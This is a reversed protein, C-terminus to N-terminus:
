ISMILMAATVVIVVAEMISVITFVRKSFKSQQYERYSLYVTLASFLIVVLYLWAM